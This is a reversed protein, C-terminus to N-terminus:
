AECGIVPEGYIEWLNCFIRDGYETFGKGADPNPTFEGFVLGNDTSYFDIRMYRGILEGMLEAWRIMEDLVPPPPGVGTMTPKHTNIIHKAETWNRSFFAHLRPGQPGGNRDIVQILGVRGGFVHCKYDIPLKAGTSDRIYEEVIFHWSTRSHQLSGIMRAKMESVSYSNGDLLNIGDRMVMVGFTSGSNNVKCVYREPWHDLDDLNTGSYILRSVKLGFRTAFARMTMKSGLKRPWRECCMWDADPSTETPKNYCWHGSARDREPNRYWDLFRGRVRSEFNPFALGRNRYAEAIGLDAFVLDPDARLARRWLLKSIALSGHLMEHRARDAYNHGSLSPSDAIQSPMAKDPM